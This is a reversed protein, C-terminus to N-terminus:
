QSTRQIQRTRLNAKGCGTDRGCRYVGLKELEAAVREDDRQRQRRTMPAPAAQRDCPTQAEVFRRIARPTSIWKGSLRAAELYIRQGNPGEVGNQVWRLLCSLSTPKGQRSPQILRALRTLTEGQGSEIEDLLQDSLM